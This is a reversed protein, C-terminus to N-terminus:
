EVRDFIITPLDEGVNEASEVVSTTRLVIKGQQTAALFVPLGRIEHETCQEPQEGAIARVPVIAVYNGLVMILGSVIESQGGFHAGRIGYDGIFDLAQGIRDAPEVAFARQNRNRAAIGGTQMTFGIAEAAEIFDVTQSVM